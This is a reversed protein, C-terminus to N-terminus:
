NNLATKPSQRCHLPFVNQKKSFFILFGRQLFFHFILLFENFRAEITLQRTLQTAMM